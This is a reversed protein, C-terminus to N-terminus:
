ESFTSNDKAAKLERYHDKGAKAYKTKDTKFAEIITSIFSGGLHHPVIVYDIGQEYLDIAQRPQEATAIFTARSNVKKIADRITINAEEEPITSIILKADQLPLESLFDSDAADGYICDVGIKSLALVTRPNYDVVVFNANNNKLTQLIKYGIRHYGFLFVDYKKKQRTEMAQHANKSEFINLFNSIKNFIKHSYHISYSSVGITILSVLVALNMLGQDIHGLNYGLLIIILSFESIQALSSGTLFTTRKKYGFLKVFSMVVLPKGVLIFASFIIADRIIETSLPGVLRSGFFVFLLVVFFDRLPKIKGGLELTYKSSALSMGAILAGIELSLGLQNFMAALLLAWAIGFLFLTEQHKALYHILKDLVYFSFIFIAAILLSIKGLQFLILSYDGSKIVPILMLVIAAVFDEVILIGLAIRGHLTDLEKKDSLIKVVVVTSSFALAAAFYLAPTFNFGLSLSILFGLIAMTLVEGLGALTSVKGFEKLVRFDLNLGVIFLLLAVGIRSFVQLFISTDTTPGVLGLLIPGVIVGALIYAIIPPQKITRAIVTFLAALGIIIGISNIIVIENM